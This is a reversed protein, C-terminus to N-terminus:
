LQKVLVSLEALLGKRHSRTSWPGYQMDKQRPVGLVAAHDSEDDEEFPQASHFAASEEFMRSPRVAGAVFIPHQLVIAADVCTYKLLAVEKVFQHEGAALVRRLM